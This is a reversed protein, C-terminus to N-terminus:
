EWYYRVFLRSKRVKPTLFRLALPVIIVTVIVNGILWSSFVAGIQSSPIIGGLALTWSGWAAGVVNNILIGFLLLLTWDRRKELNLDVDFIRFAVLPILVQLLGAIAWYLAVEPHSALASSALLGSGLLTGVYAAIAGYAGFWLAFLIMAAVAIFLGSVGQASVLIYKASIYSLVTNVVILLATLIVFSYTPEHVNKM